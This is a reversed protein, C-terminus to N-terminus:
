LTLMRLGFSCNMTSLTTSTNLISPPVTREM